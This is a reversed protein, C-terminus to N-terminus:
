LDKVTAAKEVPPDREFLSTFLNLERKIITHKTLNSGKALVANAESRINPQSVGGLLRTKITKYIYEV